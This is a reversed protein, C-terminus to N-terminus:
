RSKNQKYKESSLYIDQGKLVGFVQIPQPNVNSVAAGGEYSYPDSSSGAGFNAGIRGIQSQAAAGLAMLVAGAAIAAGPGGVKGIAKAALAAMGTAVMVEGMQVAMDAFPMLIAKTMASADIKEGSSIADFMMKMSESMSQAVAQGFNAAINAARLVEEDFESNFDKMGDSLEKIGKELGEIQNKFFERQPDNMDIRDYLDQYRKLQAQLDALGGQRTRDRYSLIPDIKKGDKDVNLPAIKGKPRAAVYPVEGGARIDRALLMKYARLEDNTLKMVALRHELNALEQNLAARKNEDTTLAIEEQKLKILYQLNKASGTIHREEAEAAAKEAAAKRAAEAAAEKDLQIQLETQQYTKIMSELKQKVLKQTDNLNTKSMTALYHEAAAITTLGAVIASAQAEIQENHTVNEEFEKNAKRFANMNGGLVATLKEFFSLNKSSAVKNLQEFWVQLSGALGRSKESASGIVEMLDGLANKMKVWSGAATDGAAKAAGGFQTQVEALMVLQAEHKKGEAVLKKIQEIQQTSFSIGSRRLMTLGIEPAELAKGLQMVAGNLDTGLVTALDQASVITQKFIDGKISKFTALLAMANITADDEFKTVKQLDGAFNALEKATLGSAGGTSRLVSELKAAALASENYAQISAKAFNIVATISFAAAITKGIGSMFSKFNGVAGQSKKIEKNFESNDLGLKVWIKGLLGM